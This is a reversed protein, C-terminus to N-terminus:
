EEAEHEVKVICNRGDAMPFRFTGESDFEAIVVFAAVYPSMDGQPSLKVTGIVQTVDFTDTDWLPDHKM